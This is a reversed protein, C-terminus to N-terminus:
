ASVWFRGPWIFGWFFSGGLDWHLDIKMEDEVRVLSIGPAVRLYAQCQGRLSPEEPLFGLGSLLRLADELIYSRGLRDALKEPLIGLERLVFFIQMLVKNGMCTKVFLEWDVKAGPVPIVGGTEQNLGSRVGAIM